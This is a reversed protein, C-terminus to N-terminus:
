TSIDVQDPSITTGPTCLLYDRCKHQRWSKMDFSSSTLLSFSTIKSRKMQIPLSQTKGHCCWRFSGMNPHCWKGAVQVKIGLSHGTPLNTPVGPAQLFQWKVLDALGPCWQPPLEQELPSRTASCSGYSWDTNNEAFYLRQVVINPMAWSARKM